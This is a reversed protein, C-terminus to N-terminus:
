RHLRCNTSQKRFWPLTWPLALAGHAALRFDWCLLQVSTLMGSEELHRSIWTDQPDRSSALCHQCQQDLLTVKGSLAKLNAIFSTLWQSPSTDMLSENKSAMGHKAEGTCSQMICAHWPMQRSDLLIWADELCSLCSIDLTSSSVMIQRIAVFSASLCGLFNLSTELLAAPKCSEPLCSKERGDGRWICNAQGSLNVSPTSYISTHLRGMEVKCIALCIHNLWSSIAPMASWSAFLASRQNEAAM